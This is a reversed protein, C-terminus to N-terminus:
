SSKPVLDGDLDHIARGPCSRRRHRGGAHLASMVEEEPKLGIPGTVVVARQAVGTGVRCVLRLLYRHRVVPREGLGVVEREQGVCNRPLGGRQRRGLLLELSLDRLERGLLGV